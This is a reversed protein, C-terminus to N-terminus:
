VFSLPFASVNNSWMLVAAHPVPHAAGPAALLSQSVFCVQVGVICNGTIVHSTAAGSNGRLCIGSGSGKNLYILNSVFFCQDADIAVVGDKSCNIHNQVCSLELISECRIGSQVAVINCNHVKVGEVRGNEVDSRVLIGARQAESM